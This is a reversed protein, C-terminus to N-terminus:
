VCDDMTSTNTCGLRQKDYIMQGAMLLCKAGKGDVRTEKVDCHATFVEVLQHHIQVLAIGKVHLLGIAGHVEANPSTEVVGAM